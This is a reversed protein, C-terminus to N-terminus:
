HYGLADVTTLDVGAGDILIWWSLIIQDTNFTATVGDFYPPLLYHFTVFAGVAYGSPVMRSTYIVRDLTVRLITDADGAHFWVHFRVVVGYFIDYLIYNFPSGIFVSVLGMRVLRIWLRVSELSHM